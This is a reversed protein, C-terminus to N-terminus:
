ESSRQVLTGRERDRIGGLDTIRVRVGGEVATAAASLKARMGGSARGDQMLGRAEAVTLMSAPEGDVIVGPVDSVIILEEAEIAVAIAAAADDANV